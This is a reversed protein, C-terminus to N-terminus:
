NAKTNLTLNLADVEVVGDVNSVGSSQFWISQGTEFARMVLAKSFVFMEPTMKVPDVVYLSQACAKPESIQFAFKGKNARVGTVKAGKSDTVVSGFGLSATELCGATMGLSSCLCILGIMTRPRFVRMM